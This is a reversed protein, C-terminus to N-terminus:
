NETLCNASHDNVVMVVMEKNQILSINSWESAFQDAAPLYARATHDMRILGPGAVPASIKEFKFASFYIGLSYNGSTCKFSCYNATDADLIDLETDAEYRMFNFGFVTDRKAERMPEALYLGSATDREALLHNDLTVEAGSIGRATGNLTFVLSPFILNIQSTALTWNGSNYSGRDLSYALIEFEFSVRPPEIKITMKNVMCSNYRWDSVDKAFALVGRRVKKDGADWTGGGSGSPLREGSAWAQTHLIDDLEFIHKYKTGTVTEPSGHYTAGATNPNEYGMAMCILRDINNYRGQVILGGGHHLGIRDHSVLGAKGELTAQEEHTPVLAISESLFPIQALAAIDNAGWSTYPYSSDQPDKIFAAKATAGKGTSM